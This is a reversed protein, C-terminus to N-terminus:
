EVIILNSEGFAELLEDDIQKALICRGYPRGSPQCILDNKKDIFVQKVIYGKPSKDLLMAGKSFLGPHEQCQEVFYKIAESYSLYPMEELTVSDTVRNKLRRLSGKDGKSSVIIPLCLGIVVLSFVIINYSFM